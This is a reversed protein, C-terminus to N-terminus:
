AGEGIKARGTPRYLQSRRELEARKAAIESRTRKIADMETANLVAQFVNDLHAHMAERAAKPDHDILAGLIYRHDDVPQEVGAHRGRAFIDICLPSKNRMDWLNEIVNAIATNRTAEAVAIHFDGDAREGVVSDRNNAMVDLLRKLEAIEEETITNAALAAAEGEFLRRAEILEFPGIDLETEGTEVPLTEAVYIGSGHRAVVLGRIELAIMAERITPRSVQMEEALDRESPLRRGLAYKGERIRAVVADAVTQYLKRNNHTM